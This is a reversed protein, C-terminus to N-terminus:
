SDKRPGGGELHDLTESLSRLVIVDSVRHRGKRDILMPTLGVQAAGRVDAELNDGIHVAEHPEVNMATLAAHFVKPDPKEVGVAYSYTISEFRRALGLDELLGPLKHSANSIIGLRYGEEQLRGLTPQVDEFLHSEVGDFLAELRDLIAEEPPLDLRRLVAADHRRFFEEEQEPPPFPSELDNTRWGRLARIIDGRNFEPGRTGLREVMEESTVEYGHDQLAQVWIVDARPEAWALTGGFDFFLVTYRRSAM